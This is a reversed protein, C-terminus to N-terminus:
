IREAFEKIINIKISKILDRNLTQEQSLKNTM